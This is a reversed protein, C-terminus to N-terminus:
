RCVFFEFSQCNEFISDISYLNILVRDQQRCQHAISFLFKDKMSGIDCSKQLTECIHRLLSFTVRDCNLM